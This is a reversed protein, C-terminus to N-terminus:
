LFEEPVARRLTSSSITNLAKVLYRGSHIHTGTVQRHESTHKCSSEAQTEQECAGFVIYSAISTCIHFAHAECSPASSSLATSTLMIALQNITAELVDPNPM